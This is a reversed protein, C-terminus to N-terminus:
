AVATVPTDTHEGVALREQIRATERQMGPDFERRSDVIRIAHLVTTHDRGGFYSGIEELSYRTYRRALWMGVQRPRTVSKHRRRSLLDPLRVGYFESIADLISQISLTPAGNSCAHDGIAIKALDMDVPCQDLLSLSQLKTIAGELERINTDIRTAIYCAVDDPVSFNRLAAKSKVIEMRTEFCPKEIQAVLGCNFRSILREELAPIEGPAADSSLVIQKGCQFLSNFTHFFEEQTRDRKSLDHIDDVVLLDVNRFRHRFESMQGAQVSDLFQTMFGNCSIYYIRLRTNNRMALQCVAQLLHTKGLGVGGHIFFPNYARGPKQAVAFAGAHALRNGPGVVFNDFSYDPSILMDDDPPLPGIDRIAAVHTRTSPASAPREAQIIQGDDGIDDEGVFRVALLHKSAIQAAETFQGICRHQLYKLQVAERVLLTLTGGSLELPEIDDFWHRSIEPHHQRLHALM